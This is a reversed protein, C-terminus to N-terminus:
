DRVSVGERDKFPSNSSGVRKLYVVGQLTMYSPDMYIQLGLTDKIILHIEM